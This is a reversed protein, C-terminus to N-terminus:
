PIGIRVKKKKLLAPIPIFFTRPASSTQTRIANTLDVNYYHPLLCRTIRSRIIHLRNQDRVARHENITTEDYQCGRNCVPLCNCRRATVTNLAIVCHHGCSMKWPLAHHFWVDFLANFFAKFFINLMLNLKWLPDFAGDRGGRRVGVLVM